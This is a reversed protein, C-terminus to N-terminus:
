ITIKKGGKEKKLQQRKRWAEAEFWYEVWVCDDCGNGCCESENPERPEPDNGPEESPATSKVSKQETTSTIAEEFLMSSGEFLDTNQVVDDNNKSYLDSIPFPVERKRKRIQQVLNTNTSYNKGSEGTIAFFPSLCYKNICYNPRGYISFTVFRKIKQIDVQPNYPEDLLSNHMMSSHANRERGKKGVRLNRVPNQGNRKLSVRHVLFSSFQQM